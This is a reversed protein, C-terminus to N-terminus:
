RVTNRAWKHISSVHKPVSQLLSSPQQLGVLFPSCWALEFRLSAALGVLLSLNQVCEACVSRLQQMAQYALGFSKSLFVCYLLSFRTYINNWLNMTKAPAMLTQRCTRYLNWLFFCVFLLSMKLRKHGTCNKYSVSLSLISAILPLTYSKRLLLIVVATNSSSSKLCLQPYTWTNSVYFYFSLSREATGNKQVDESM